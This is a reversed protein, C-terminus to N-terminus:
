QSFIGRRKPALDFAAETETDSEDDHDDYRYLCATFLAILCEQADADKQAASRRNGWLSIGSYRELGDYDVFPKMMVTTSWKDCELDMWYDYELLMKVAVINGVMMAMHLPTDGYIDQKFMFLSLDFRDMSGYRFLAELRDLSSTCAYYHMATRGNSDRLCASDPAAQLLLRVIFPCHTTMLPTLRDKGFSFPVAGM